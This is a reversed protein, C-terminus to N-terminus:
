PPRAHPAALVQIVRPNKSAHRIRVAWWAGARSQRVGAKARERQNDCNDPSLGYLSFDGAHLRKGQRLGGDHENDAANM